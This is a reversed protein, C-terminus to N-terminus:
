KKEECQWNPSMIENVKTWSSDKKIESIWTESLQLDLIELFCELGGKEIDIDFYIFDSDKSVSVGNYNMAEAKIESYEEFLGTYKAALAKVKVLKDNKYDIYFYWDDDNIEECYYTTEAVKSSNNSTDNDIYKENYNYNDDKQSSTLNNGCGTVTFLEIILMLSFIIKKM